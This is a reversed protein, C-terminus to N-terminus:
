LNKGAIQLFEDDIGPLAQSYSNPDCSHNMFSDFNYLHRAGGTTVVTHVLMSIPLEIEPRGVAPAGRFVFRMETFRLAPVVEVRGRYIVDGAEVARETFIGFDGRQNKRLHLGAPVVLPVVLCPSEGMA